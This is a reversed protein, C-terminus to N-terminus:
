FASLSLESDSNIPKKTNSKSIQLGCLVKANHSWIFKPIDSATNKKKKLAKLPSFIGWRLELDRGWVIVFKTQKQINKVNERGM